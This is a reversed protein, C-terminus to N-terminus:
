STSSEAGEGAGHRGAHQWAEQRSSPSLRPFQLSAEKIKEKILTATAMIDECRYLIRVLVSPTIFLIRFCVCAHVCVCVSISACCLCVCVNAYVYLSVYVCIHEWM